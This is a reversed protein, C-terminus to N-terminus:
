GGAAARAAVEAARVESAPIGGIAWYQPPFTTVYARTRQIDVGLVDAATVSMEHIIERILAESRGEMFEMRVLPYPEAESGGAVLWHNAPVVRLSARVREIPAEILEAFRRASRDLLDALTADDPGERLEIELLPM